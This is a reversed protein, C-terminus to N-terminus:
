KQVHGSDGIGMALVLSTPTLALFFAGKGGLSHKWSDSLNRTNRNPPATQVNTELCLFILPLTFPRRGLLRHKLLPRPTRHPYTQATGPTVLGVIM